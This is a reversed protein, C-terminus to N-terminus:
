AVERVENTKQTSGTSTMFAHKGLDDEGGEGADEVGGEGVAAFVVVLRGDDNGVHGEVVEGGDDLEHVVAGQRQPRPLPRRGRQHVPICNSLGKPSQTSKQAFKQAPLTSLKLLKWVPGKFFLKKSYNRANKPSNLELTFQIAM